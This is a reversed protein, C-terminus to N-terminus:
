PIERDRDGNGMERKVFVGVATLFEEIDEHLVRYVRENDVQWYLHILLKRFRAMRNLRDALDPNLIGLEGMLKFCDGYDIPAGAGKKAVIHNCLDTCAQISVILHYKISGLITADQLIVEKEMPLYGRLVKV